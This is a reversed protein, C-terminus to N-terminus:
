QQSANNQSRSNSNENNQTNIIQLSNEKEIEVIKLQHTLVVTKREEEGKVRLLSEDAKKEELKAQAKLQDSKRTEEAQIVPLREQMERRREEAIKERNRIIAIITNFSANFILEKTIFLYESYTITPIGDGSNGLAAGAAELIAAKIEQTPAPRISIGMVVPNKTSADKLIQYYNNGLVPLYGFDWKGDNLAVLHQIRNGASKYVDRQITIWKAYYPKLTNITAAQVMLGIGVAQRPEPAKSASTFRDIGTVEALQGYIVEASLAFEQTALEVGGKLEAYPLAASGGTQGVANTRMQYILTGTQLRLKLIDMVEWEKNDFSMNMLSELEIAIGPPAAKALNNQWKLFSLMLQDLMPIMSEVISKGPIKVRFIPLPVDREGYDFPLNDMTGWDYIEETGVIWKVEHISRLDERFMPRGKKEKPQRTKSRWPEEYEKSFETGSIKRQQYFRSDTTKFFCNYVPILFDNYNSSGTEVYAEVTDLVNNHNSHKGIFETAISHIKEESWGTANRIDVVTVFSPYGAYSSKSYDDKATQEMYLEATDIRKFRCKGIDDDYYDHIAGDNLTFLDRMFARYQEESESIEKYDQIGKELAIEYPLKLHGSDEIMKLEHIDSPIFGEAEPTELGAQQLLDKEWKGFKMEYWMQFKKQDRENLAFENIAKVVVSHEQGEMIGSLVMLFKPAPSFIEEDNVDMFKDGSSNTVEPARPGGNSSHTIPIKPADTDDGYGLIQKYISNSQRGEAYSRLYLANRVQAAVEERSASHIFEAFDRHWEAGKSEPNIDHPPRITVKAMIKLILGYM